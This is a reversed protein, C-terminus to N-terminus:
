LPDPGGHHPRPCKGRVGGGHRGSCLSGAACYDGADRHQCAPRIRDGAHRGHVLWPAFIGGSGGSGLTLCTAALKLALLILVISLSLQNTLAREIVDYGVNFFPPMGRLPLGTFSPYTLGLVGILAGGVAPKLWAPAARWGDFRDESWYLARVFVVGVLAAALGLLPYLGFELFSVIRYEPVPFASVNGFVAQGVASGAVAAIVVTSFYRVSFEGLIIELSFLVGAIPANFTAAIGAAAGCAVLNRIREDSLRFVQGVTSGLAAGIQAIPGERGVSGGTGINISSALSKVVAVVPRIRGGRLAVAEMVEPVGHGKAEQAFFFILLGVLLGGITPVLITHASDWVPLQRPIWSFGVWEVGRILYRFAVAGLGTGLGVLLATGLLVIEGSPGVRQLLSVVYGSLRRLIGGTSLRARIAFREGGRVDRSNAKESMDQEDLQHGGTM